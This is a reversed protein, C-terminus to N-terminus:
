SMQTIFVYMCVYMQKKNKTHKELEVQGGQLEMLKTWLSAFKSKFNGQM